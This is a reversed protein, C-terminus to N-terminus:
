ALKNGSHIIYPTNSWKMCNRLLGSVDGGTCRRLECLESLVTSMMLCSVRYTSHCQKFCTLLIRADIM